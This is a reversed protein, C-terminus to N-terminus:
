MLAMTYVFSQMKSVKDTINIDNEDILIIFGKKM